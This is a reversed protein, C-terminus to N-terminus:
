VTSQLYTYAYMYWVHICKAYACEVVELSLHNVVVAGTGLLPRSCLPFEGFVEGGSAYETVIYLHRGGDVM